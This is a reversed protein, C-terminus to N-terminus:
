NCDLKDLFSYDTKLQKPYGCVYYHDPYNDNFTNTNNNQINSEKIDYNIIKAFSFQFPYSVFIFLAFAVVLVLNLNM